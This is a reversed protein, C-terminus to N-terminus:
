TELTSGSVAHDTVLDVNKQNLRTAIAIKTPKTREVSTRFALPFAQHRTAALNTEVFPDGFEPRPGIQQLRSPVRLQVLPADSPQTRRKIKGCDFGIHAAANGRRPDDVLDLANVPHHIVHRRLRRPRNLPLLPLLAPYLLNAHRILHSTTEAIATSLDRMM